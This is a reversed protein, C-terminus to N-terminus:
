RVSLASKAEGFPGRVGAAVRLGAERGAARCLQASPGAETAIARLEARRRPPLVFWHSRCLLHGTGVREECGKVPCTM